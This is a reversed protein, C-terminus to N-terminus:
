GDARVWDSGNTIPHGCTAAETERSIRIGEIRVHSLANATVANGHGGSGHDAVPTGEVAVLAGDIRVFDQAPTLLVGGALSFGSRAVPQLAM